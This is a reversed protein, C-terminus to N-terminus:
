HLSFRFGVLSFGLSLQFTCPQITSFVEAKSWTFALLPSAFTLAVCSVLFLSSQFCWPSFTFALFVESRQFIIMWGCKVAIDIIEPKVRRMRDHSSGFCPTEDVEEPLKVKDDVPLVEPGPISALHRKSRNVYRSKLFQSGKPHQHKEFFWMDCHKGDQFSSSSFRRFSHLMNSSCGLFEVVVFIGIYCVDLPVMNKLGIKGWGSRKRWNQCTMRLSRQSLPNQSQVWCSRQDQAKGYTKEKAWPGTESPCNPSNKPRWDHAGFNTIGM